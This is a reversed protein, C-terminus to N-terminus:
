RAGPGSISAWMGKAPYPEGHIRGVRKFQDGLISLAVHSLEQGTLVGIYKAKDIIGDSGPADLNVIVMPTGMWHSDARISYHCGLVYYATATTMGTGSNGM